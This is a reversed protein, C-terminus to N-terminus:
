KPLNPPPQAKKAPIREVGPSKIATSIPHWLTAIVETSMLNDPLTFPAYFHARRRYCDFFRRAHLNWRLDWVDQYPYDFPTHWRRPRMQNLYQPNGMPNWIWRMNNWGQPGFNAPDSIFVGRMGVHYPHKSMNREIVRIQENVRHMQVRSFRTWQDEPKDPDGIVSKRINDVEAMALGKYRGELEWFKGGPKRRQEMDMTIVIQLWIQETPGLASLREVIQALPDVKFEEKPDKDLEFEVYTKIPYADNRPEYRYDTAYVLEKSPDYVYKAAYDEAEVIEVEPYQAYIASEVVKRYNAWLWIYFHVEGGFSAIEFSFIPRVQGLWKRHFYTTEGSYIWLQAFALEMGRPSKVLDRPMKVELLLPKRNFIFSSQVYWVWAKWAGAVATPLLWIPMTGIIWAFAFAPLNPILGWLAGLFGLFVSVLFVGRSVGLLNGVTGEIFVRFNLSVIESVLGRAVWSGVGWQQTRVQEEGVGPVEFAM